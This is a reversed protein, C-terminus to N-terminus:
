ITYNLLVFFTSTSSALLMTVVRLYQNEKTKENEEKIRLFLAVISISVRTRRMNDQINGLFNISKWKDQVSGIYSVTSVM